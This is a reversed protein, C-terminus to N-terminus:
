FKGCAILCSTNYMQTLGFVFADYYAKLAPTTALESEM